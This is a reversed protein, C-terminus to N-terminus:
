QSTANWSLNTGTPVSASTVNIGALAIGLVRMDNTGQHDHPRKATPILLSLTLESVPPHISYEFTIKSRGRIERYGLFAGNLYATIEQPADDPVYGWLSMEITGNPVAM